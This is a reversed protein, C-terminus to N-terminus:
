APWISEIGPAASGPSFASASKNGRLGCFREIPLSKAVQLRLNAEPELALLIFEKKM